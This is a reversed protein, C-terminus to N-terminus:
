GFRAPRYAKLDLSTSQGNVLEAVLRGTLGGLTLGIHGHGFAYIVRSDSPSAGIVPLSDPMSPRYGLWTSGSPGLGTLLRRAKREIVELRHPRVPHGLGGLEVTGAARLGEGLPTMYFGHEPYCVPQNLLGGSGPFMVHYGRECDLRVRDTVVQPLQRSWAGAAVVVRDATVLTQGGGQLRLREGERVWGDVQAQVLKGGRAMFDQLLGQFYLHPSDLTTTDLFRLGKVYCPALAPEMERVAPADIVEMRVGQAARLEISARTDNFQAEHSYLYMCGTHKVLHMLGAQEMLPAHGARACRLLEGLSNVIRQVEDPRGAKLFSLLWPTLRWLDRWIVTLPGSPDLLMGPVQWTMGPMSVPLCAAYALTCANGYSAATDYPQGPLPPHPDCVVVRHGCRQLWLASSLGVVGAGIVVVDRQAGPPVPQLAPLSQHFGAPSNTNM